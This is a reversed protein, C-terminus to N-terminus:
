MAGAFLHENFGAELDLQVWVAGGDPPLPLRHEGCDLGAMLHHVGHAAGAEVGGHLDIREGVLV